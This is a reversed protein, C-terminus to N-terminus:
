RPCATSIPKASFAVSDTLVMAASRTLQCMDLYGLPGTPKIADSDFRLNTRELAKQTAICLCSSRCREAQDRLYAVISTL